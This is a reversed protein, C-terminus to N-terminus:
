GALGKGRLCRVCDHLVTQVLHAATTSRQVHVVQTLSLQRAAIDYVAHVGAARYLCVVGRAVCM